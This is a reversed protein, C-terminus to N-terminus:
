KQSVSVDDIWMVRDARPEFGSVLNSVGYIEAPHVMFIVPAEDHFLKAMERMVELRKASDMTIRSQAFLEDFEVNHWRSQPRSSESWVYVFDGDMAPAYWWGIFFGPTMGGAHYEAVYGSTDILETTVRVGIEALYGATAETLQKDQLQLGQTTYITMDFGNAYGAEELLAKAKAPDYEYPKVDPAHGFGNDSVLQGAPSAFGSMVINALADKDVAYNLAQRVRLDKLPEFGVTDLVIVNAQGLIATKVSVTSSSEMESAQGPPLAEAIDIGGSQLAAVRASADPMATMEIQRFKPQGRWSTAVAELTVSTSPTFQSYAFPGTGIPESAFGDPGV